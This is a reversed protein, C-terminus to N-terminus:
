EKLYNKMSMNTILNKLEEKELAGLFNYWSGSIGTKNKGVEFINVSSSIPIFKRRM